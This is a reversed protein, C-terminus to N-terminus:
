MQVELVTPFFSIILYAFVGLLVIFLRTMKLQKQDSAEKNIYKGYIDYTLKTAASLLYSNGTTIIFASAAALLIGGIAVPMALTTAM